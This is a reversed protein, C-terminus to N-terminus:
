FYVISKILSTYIKLISDLTPKKFYIECKLKQFLNTVHPIKM